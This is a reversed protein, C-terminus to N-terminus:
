IDFLEIKNQSCIYRINNIDRPSYNFSFYIM